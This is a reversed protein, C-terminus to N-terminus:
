YAYFNWDAFTGMYDGGEEVGVGLGFKGKTGRPSWVWVESRGRPFVVALPESTWYFRRMVSEFLAPRPAVTNLDVVAGFGEPLERPLAAREAPTPAPLGPGVVAWAPRHEALDAQHPVLVEVPQAFAEPYDYTVVFLERGTEFLGYLAVSFEPKGVAFPVGDRLHGPTHASAALAGLALATALAQRRPSM